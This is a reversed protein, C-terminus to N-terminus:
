TILEKIAIEAAKDAVSNVGKEFSGVNKKSKSTGFEEFIDYFANSNVVVSLGEDLQRIHKALEKRYRGTRKPLHPEIGDVLVDGVQNLVKRKKSTSIEMNKIEDFIDDFGEIMFSTSM